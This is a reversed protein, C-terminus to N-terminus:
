ATENNTSKELVKSVNITPLNYGPYEGSSMTLNAVLSRVYPYLTAVANNRIFTDIGYSDNDEDPNYEFSGSMAVKVQFPVNEVNLAGVVVKLTVVVNMGDISNKASIQSKLNISKLSKDYNQNKIYSMEDVVYHDFKFVGM